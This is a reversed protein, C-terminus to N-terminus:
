LIEVGHNEHHDHDRDDDAHVQQEELIVKPLPQNSVDADDQHKDGEIPSEELIRSDPPCGNFSSEVKLPSHLSFLSCPM